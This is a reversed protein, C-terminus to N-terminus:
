ASKKIKTAKQNQSLEFMDIAQYSKIARLKLSPSKGTPNREEDEQKQKSKANLFEALRKLGGKTEESLVDGLDTQNESVGTVSKSQNEIDAVALAEEKQEDPEHTQMPEIRSLKM